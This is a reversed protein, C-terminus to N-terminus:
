VRAAAEATAVARPEGEIAAVVEDRVVGAADKARFSRKSPRGLRGSRGSRRPCPPAGHASWVIIEARDRNKMAQLMVKVHGYEDHLARVFRAHLFTDPIEMGKESMQNNTDELAHLAEIPNSNPPITFDHFKDYLTQTAVESESEYGEELHDFAERASKWRKLISIDTESHPAGDTFNWAQYAGRVEENSFGERLLVAKQKLPDGEPVVRTGQGVSHGSIDLM